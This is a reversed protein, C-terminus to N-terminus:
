DFNVDEIVDVVAYKERPVLRVTLVDLQFPNTSGKKAIWTQFARGLRQLKKHHVREEPRFIERSVSKELRERTEHSVAKVEIFHIKQGKQMILDIEGWKERYNREILSFGQKELYELAIDEGLAGTELHPALKNQM